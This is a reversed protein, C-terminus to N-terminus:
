FKWVRSDGALPSSTHTRPSPHASPLPAGCRGGYHIQGTLFALVPYPVEPSRELFSRLQTVCVSLDATTFESGLPYPRNRSPTRVPYQPPHVLGGV